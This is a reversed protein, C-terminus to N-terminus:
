SEATWEIEFEAEDTSPKGVPCLETGLDSLWAFRPDAEFGTPMREEAINVSDSGDKKLEPGTLTTGYSSITWVGERDLYYAISVREVRMRRGVSSYPRVLVPGNDIACRVTHQSSSEVDRIWM